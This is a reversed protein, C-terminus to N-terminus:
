SILWDLLNDFGDIASEIGNMVHDPMDCVFDCANDFADELISILGM